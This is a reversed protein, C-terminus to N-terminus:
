ISHRKLPPVPCPTVLASLDAETLQFESDRLAPLTISEPETSRWGYNCRQCRYIQWMGSGDPAKAVVEAVGIACRVCKM